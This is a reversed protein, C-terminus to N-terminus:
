EEIDNKGLKVIYGKDIARKLAKNYLDLNNDKKLKKEVSKQFGIAQTKNDTLKLVDRLGHMNFKYELIRRM